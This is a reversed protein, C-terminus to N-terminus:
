VCRSTYLLCSCDQMNDFKNEAGITVEVGAGKEHAHMLECLFPEEELMLLLEKVKDVDRFEPQELLQTTGGLYVREKKDVTLVQEVVEIAADFLNKDSLVDARIRRLLSPKIAELALGALHSNVAMAIRQFDEISIGDPMEMVKNEVFGADTM